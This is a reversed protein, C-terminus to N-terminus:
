CGNDYWYLNFNHYNGDSQRARADARRNVCDSTQVNVSLVGCSSGFVYGGSSRLEGCTTFSGGGTYELYFRDVSHTGLSQWINDPGIVVASAPAALAGSALAALAAGRVVSRVKPV